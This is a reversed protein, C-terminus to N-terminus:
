RRKLAYAAAVLATLLALSGMGLTSTCGYKELIARIEDEQGSLGGHTSETEVWLPPM